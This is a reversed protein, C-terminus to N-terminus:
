KAARVFDAGPHRPDFLQDYLEYPGRQATM